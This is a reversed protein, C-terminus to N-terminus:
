TTSQDVPETGAMGVDARADEVLESFLARFSVFAARMDDTPVAATQSNVYIGHAKRYHEVVQPHDVSILDAQAEFDQVPYGRTVMVSSVLADAQGLATTPSDVFEGQVQRWGQQYRDRQVPTLPQITLSKRQEVRNKLDVEARRKDGSANVTNTYEPGFQDKLQRRQRERSTWAVLYGALALVIVVVVVLVIISTTSVAGGEM